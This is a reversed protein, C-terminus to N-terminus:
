NFILNQKKVVSASIIFDLDLFHLLSFIDGKGKPFGLVIALQNVKKVPRVIINTLANLIIFKEIMFDKINEDVIEIRKPILM